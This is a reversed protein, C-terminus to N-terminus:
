IEGFISEYSSINDRGAKFINKMTQKLLRNKVLEEEKSSEM